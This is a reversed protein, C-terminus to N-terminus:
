FNNHAQETSFGADVIAGSSFFNNGLIITSEVSSGVNVSTGANQIKSGIVSVNRVFGQNLGNLRVGVTVNNITQLSSISVNRIEEAGGNAELVVAEAATTNLAGFINVDSISVQEIISAAVPSAGILEVLIGTRANAPVTAGQWRMNVQSIIINAISAPPTGEATNQVRIGTHDGLDQDAFTIDFGSLRFGRLEAQGDWVDLSFQFSADPDAAQYHSINQFVGGEVNRCVIMQNGGSMRCNTVLADRSVRAVTTSEFRIGICPIGQSDLLDVGDFYCDDIVVRDGTECYIFSNTGNRDNVGTQMVFDCHRIQVNGTQGLVEVVGLGAGPSSDPAPTILRFGELSAGDEMRAITQTTATQFNGTIESQERGAGILRVSANIQLPAATPLVSITCPRVRVDVGAYGSAVLADANTLATRIGDGSGPDVVDGNIGATGVYPGGDQVVVIEHADRITTTAASALLVWNALGNNPGGTAQCYYVGPNTTTVYALDGAELKSFEPNPLPAGSANPLLTPDAYNGWNRHYASRPQLAPTKSAM